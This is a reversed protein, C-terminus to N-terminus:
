IKALWNEWKGERLHQNLLTKVLSSPVYAIVHSSLIYNKFHAVEKVLSLVSNKIDSYKLEYDHLTKRMFRILLEEGKNNRQMLISAITEDLAFSYIIFDKNFDPSIL